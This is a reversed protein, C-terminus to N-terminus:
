SEVRIFVQTLEVLEHLPLGNSFLIDPALQQLLRGGVGLGADAPTLHQEVIETLGVVLVVTAVAVVTQMRLRLDLGLVLQHQRQLHYFGDLLIETGVIDFVEDDAALGLLDKGVLVLVVVEETGALANVLFQPVGDDTLGQNGTEQLFVDLVVTQQLQGSGTLSVQLRGRRKHNDLVVLIDVIGIHDVVM